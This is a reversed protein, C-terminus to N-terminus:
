AGNNTLNVTSTAGSTSGLVLDYGSGSPASLIYQSGDANLAGGNYYLAANSSTSVLATGFSTSVQGMMSSVPGTRIFIQGSSSSTSVRELAVLGDRSIKTLGGGGGGNISLLLTNASDSGNAVTREFPALATNFKLVEFGSIAEEVALFGTSGIWSTTTAVGFDTSAGILLPTENAQSSSEVKYADYIDIGIGKARLYAINTGRPDWAPTVDNGQFFTLRTISQAQANHGSITPVTVALALVFVFQEFIQVLRSTTM